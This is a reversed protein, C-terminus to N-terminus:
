TQITRDERCGFIESAWWNTGHSACWVDPSAVVRRVWRLIYFVFLTEYILTFKVRTIRMEIHLLRNSSNTLSRRPYHIYISNWFGVPFMALFRGCRTYLQAFISIRYITVHFILSISFVFLIILIVRELWEATTTSRVWKRRYYIYM